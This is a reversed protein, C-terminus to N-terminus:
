GLGGWSHQPPTKSVDVKELGSGLMPPVEERKTLEFLDTTGFGVFGVLDFTQLPGFVFRYPRNQKLSWLFGSAIQSECESCTSFVFFSLLLLFSDKKRLCVWTTIATWAM